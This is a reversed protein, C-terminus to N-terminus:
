GARIDEYIQEVFANIEARNNYYAEMCGILPLLKELLIIIKQYSLVTQRLASVKNTLIIRCIDNCSPSPDHDSFELITKIDSLTFQAYKMVRIYHLDSIDKEDYYRYGNKHRKPSVIGLKDYYRLSDTSIGTKKSVQQITWVM